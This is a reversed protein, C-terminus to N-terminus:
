SSAYPIVLYEQGRPLGREDISLTSLTPLTGDLGFLASV